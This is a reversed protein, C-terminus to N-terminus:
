LMYKEWFELEGVIQIEAGKENLELAKKIKTGYSGAVWADSGLEGVLVINTKKTVSNQISLGISELMHSIDNRAGHSFDGTLVLNYGSINSDCITNPVNDLPHLLNNCLVMLSDLECSSVINDELIQYLQKFLQDYPYNGALYAHDNIWTKLLDFESLNIAGDAIIGELLGKLENLLVSDVSIGKSNYSVFHSYRNVKECPHISSDNFSFHRIFRGEDLGNRYMDSLLIATARCDSGSDHHNLPISLEECLTNLKHNCLYPYIYRAASVTDIYAVSNAKIGYHNLTKKLVSLDFCANHAVVIGDFFLPNIRDWVVPFAPCDKVLEAHIGHLHINFQDFSCEPNILYNVSDQIEGNVIRTIGISCIRDNLSNPTEVDFVTIRNNM